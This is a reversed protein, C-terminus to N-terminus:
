QGSGPLIPLPKVPGNYLFCKCEDYHYGISRYVVPGTHKTAGYSTRGELQIPDVLKTGLGEIAKVVSGTLLNGASSVATMYTSFLGCVAYYAGYERTNLGNLGGDSLDKFCKKQVPSLPPQKTANLDGIPIWGASHVNRLQEPSAIGEGGSTGGNALYKPRYGQSEAFVAFLLLPISETVVTDVGAARMKLVTGQLEQTNGALQSSGTTCKATYHVKLDFKNAKLYPNVTRTFVRSVDPCNEDILGLKNSSKLWGDEKASTLAVLRSVDLVPDMTAIFNPYTKFSTSDGMRGFATNIWAINNKKLCNGLGEDFVFSLGLVIDVHHDQTFNACVKQFMTPWDNANTDVDSFVPAIKRGLIGGDKNVKNIMAQLIDKSTHATSQSFQGGLLNCNGCALSIFGVSLPKASVVGGLTPGNSPAESASSSAEPLASADTTAGPTTGESTPGTSPGSILPSTPDLLSLGSGDDGPNSLGQLRGVDVTSGCGSLLAAICALAAWAGMRRGTSVRRM